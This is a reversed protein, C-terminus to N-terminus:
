LACHDLPMQVGVDTTREIVKRLRYASEQPATVSFAELESNETNDARHAFIIGFTQSEAPTTSSPVGRLYRAVVRKLFQAKLLTYWVM